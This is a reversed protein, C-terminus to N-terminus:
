KSIEKLATYNLIEINKGSVKIIKKDNFEKLLRVVNETAMNTIDALDKRTVGLTFKNSQYIEDTFCVLADALRGNLQKHSICYLKDLIKEITTNLSKIVQTNFFQNTIMIKNIVEVNIQCLVVDEIATVSFKYHKAHNLSTLGLMKSKGAIEIILNKDTNELYIKVLGKKIFYINSAFSNQKIITEDKKYSIEVKNDEIQNLENDTLESFCVSKNECFLCNANGNAM